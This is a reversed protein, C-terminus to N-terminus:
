VIPHKTRMNASTMVVGWTGPANEVTRWTPRCRPTTPRPAWRRRSPAPASPACRGGATLPRHQIPQGLPQRAPLGLSLYTFHGSRESRLRAYRVPITSPEPEEVEPRASCVLRHQLLHSLSHIAKKKLPPATHLFTSPPPLHEKSCTHPSDAQFINSM